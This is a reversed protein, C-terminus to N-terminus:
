KKKADATFAAATTAEALLGATMQDAMRAFERHIEQELNAFDRPNKQLVKLWQPPDAKLRRQIEVM